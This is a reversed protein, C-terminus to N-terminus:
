ESWLQTVNLRIFHPLIFDAAGQFAGAALSTFWSADGTWQEEPHNYRSEKPLHSNSFSSSEPKCTLCELFILELQPKLSGVSPSSLIGRFRVAHGPALRFGLSQFRTGAM